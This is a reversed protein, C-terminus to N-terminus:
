LPDEHMAVHAADIDIRGVARLRLDGASEITLTSTSSDHRIVTGDDFAIIDVDGTDGPAPLDDSPLTQVVIGNAPEGGPSIVLVQTGVRLPTWARFNNAILTPHRLWGTLRGNVELRIRRGAFDTVAVTAVQALNQIRRAHEAADYSMRRINAALGKM